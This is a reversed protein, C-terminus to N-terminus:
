GSTLMRSVRGTPVQGFTLGDAGNVQVFGCGSSMWLILGDAPFEFLGADFRGAVKGLLGGTRSVRPIVAFGDAKGLKRPPVVGRLTLQFLGGATSLGCHKKIASPLHEFLAVKAPRARHVIPGFACRRVKVAQLGEVLLQDPGLGILGGFLDM